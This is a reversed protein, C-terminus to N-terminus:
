AKVARPVAVNVGSVLWSMVNLVLAPDVIINFPKCCVVPVARHRSLELLRTIQEASEMVKCDAYVPPFVMVVVVPRFMSKVNAEPSAVWVESDNVLAPVPRAKIMLSVVPPAAL